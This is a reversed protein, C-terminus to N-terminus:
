QLVTVMYKSINTSILTFIDEEHKQMIFNWDLTAIETVVQDIGFNSFDRYEIFKSQTQKSKQKIYQVNM